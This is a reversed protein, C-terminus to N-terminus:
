KRQIQVTTVTLLHLWDSSYEFSVDAPGVIVTSDCLKDIPRKGPKTFRAFFQNFTKWSDRPELYDDMTYHSSDKFTQLSAPTLSSEQDLNQGVAIAYDVLWQSLYTLSQSYSSPSIPNQLNTM